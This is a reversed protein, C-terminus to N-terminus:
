PRFFNLVVAAAVTMVVLFLVIALMLFSFFVDFLGLQSRQLESRFAHWARRCARPLRRWFPGLEPLEPARYPNTPELHKRNSNKM